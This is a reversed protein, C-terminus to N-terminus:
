GIELFGEESESTKFSFLNETATAQQSEKRMFIEMFNISRLGTRAEFKYRLSPSTASSSPLPSPHSDLEDQQHVLLPLSPKRLVVLVQGQILSRGELSLDDSFAEGSGVM